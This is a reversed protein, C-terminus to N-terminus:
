PGGVARFVVLSLISVGIVGLSIKALKVRRLGVSTLVREPPIPSQFLSSISEEERIKKEDVHWKLTAVCFALTFFAAVLLFSIVALFLDDSQAASSARPTSSAPEVYFFASLFLIVVAFITLTKKM